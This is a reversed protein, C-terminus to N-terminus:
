WDETEKYAKPLEATINMEEGEEDIYIVHPPYTQKGVLLINTDLLPNDKLHLSFVRTDCLIQYGKAISNICFQLDFCESRSSPLYQVNWRIDGEFPIKDVM